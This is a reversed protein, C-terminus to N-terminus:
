TGICFRPQDVAETLSLPRPTPRAGEDNLTGTRHYLPQGRSPDIALLVDASSLSWVPAGPARPDLNLTLHEWECGRTRGWVCNWALLRRGDALALGTARGRRLMLLRVLDRGRGPLILEVM